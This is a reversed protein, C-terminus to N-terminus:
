ADRSDDEGWRWKPKESTRVVVIILVITPILIVLSFVWWIVREPNFVISGIIITALWLAMVLWGQWTCPLGWGWGYKKASFWPKRQPENM